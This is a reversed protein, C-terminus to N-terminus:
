LLIEKVESPDLDCEFRTKDPVDEFEVKCGNIPGTGKDLDTGWGRLVAWGEPTKNNRHDLALREIGSPYVTRAKNPHQFGNRQRPLWVITARASREVEPISPPTKELAERLAKLAPTVDSPHLALFKQPEVSEGGDAYRDPNDLSILRIGEARVVADVDVVELAQETVELKKLLADNHNATVVMFREVMTQSNQRLRRLQRERKQEESKRILDQQEDDNPPPIKELEAIRKETLGASSMFHQMAAEAVRFDKTEPLAADRRERSEDLGRQQEALVERRILLERDPPLARWKKELRRNM